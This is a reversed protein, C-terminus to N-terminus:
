ESKMRGDAILKGVMQKDKSVKFFSIKFIM